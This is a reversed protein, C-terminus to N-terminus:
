RVDGVFVLFNKKRKNLFIDHLSVISVISTPRGLQLDNTVPRHSLYNNHTGLLVQENGLSVANCAQLSSHSVHCFHETM